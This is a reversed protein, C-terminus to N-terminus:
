EAIFRHQLAYRVLEATSHLGLVQMIEYKHSEVTRPSLQLEAAIEKMRRGEALLKLVERQRATLQVEGTHSPDAIRALVGKTLPSALYLHGQLVQEIASLIEEGASQKLLFGSAGARIAQTALEPDSYMTLVIVKSQVGEIALQSLVDLGSLGPMSMDTVIVDPRLRKAEALLAEGDGVDGVVEYADNLLSVLGERVISHDDAILVTTRRM